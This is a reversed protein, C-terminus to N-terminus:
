PRTVRCLEIFGSATKGNKQEQKEKISCGINATELTREEPQQHHKNATHPKNNLKEFLILHTKFIAQNQIESLKQTQRKKQNTKQQYEKVHKPELM